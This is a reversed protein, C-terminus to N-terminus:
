QEPWSAVEVRLLYMTGNANATALYRGDPTFAVCRLSSAQFIFSSRLHKKSEEKMRGSEDKRLDWLRITGDACCTALLPAAPSFALDLIAGARSKWITQERNEVDWLCAAGAPADTVAGLTRSDPSFAVGHVIGPVPLARSGKARLDHLRVTGDEGSSALWFGDRSFAVCHVVGTHGPLPTGEQGTAVDWLKVTGNEAGAALRRSDPSFQIRCFARSHGHLARVETGKDMDWIAITGDCSGSALLKGDPSFALGYVAGTHARLSYRVQSAALDWVKVVWDDGASAAWRGGPSIAVAQLPAAHGSRPFLETGTSLSIIRVYTADHQPALYLFKGDRSLCHFARMPNVSAEVSLVPLADGTSVDWRTFAHILKDRETTSSALLTRSDPLFVLQEGPTPITRIEQWTRANWVQCAHIDGTALYEGDPSFVAPGIPERHGQLTRLLTLKGNNCAFIEVRKGYFLSVALYRGDPSFHISGVGALQLKLNQIEQGSHSDWVHIGEPGETVLYKSDSSFAAACSVKRGPIEHSFLVRSTSLDWVRVGGGGTEHRSTAALLRGDPSFTTFFVRGGPGQLSQLSNGSATEFLVVAEALPVALVKGDPSEEMWATQGIHPFLFRGDGLVAALAAPARAPDGGGALALLQSPIADRRLDLHTISPKIPNSASGTVLSHSAAEVERQPDYGRALYVLLSVVALLALLTLVVWVSRGPHPGAPLPPAEKGAAQVPAGTAQPSRPPEQLLALQEGLLDAVARASGPRQDPDKAHLRGILDCLWAPVNANSATIPPPTEECVRRLVETTTDAQFPPHGTCLTYLVSGLSFLDTRHDTPRRRAQEPAMFQPTGALVGEPHPGDDVARALGFDVIKVRQVGNELLINAPKIDRHVLGQAHAAALGRAIQMGIRLIEALAPPKGQGIREALTMGSIYEMGLYPVPGEDSVAHIAVVHDDRVAAAAQAERVFRDRATESAALLPSLAKIAVIRQLKTDHAKLVLGTAGRGIVELVEYHDIRRPSGAEGPPGLSALSQEAAAVQELAPVNLFTDAEYHSRLLEEVRQRLAPRGACAADLYAARQAADEKELANLFIDREPM